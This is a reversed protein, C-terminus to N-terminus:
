PLFRSKTAPNYPPCQKCEFGLLSAASSGVQGEAAAASPDWDGMPLSGSEWLRGYTGYSRVQWDWVHRLYRLTDSITRSVGIHAFSDWGRHIILSCSAWVTRSLGNYASADRIVGSVEM